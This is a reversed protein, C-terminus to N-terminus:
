KKQIKLKIPLYVTLFNLRKAIIFVMSINWFAISTLSAIAAGNIGHPKILVLNLIINIITSIFVILQVINHNDTMNLINTVPGSIANIFQGCTLIVLAVAGEKFQEGFIGLVFSPFFSFTLLFPSSTWFIMKTVQQALNGLGEIDGRGYFEAFKPVAISNIAFLTISTLMAVKVSVAYVGVESETRLMGLMITDTWQMILGLSSSLLMPIAVNLIAFYNNPLTLLTSPPPPSANTSQVSHISRLWLLISLAFMLFISIVYIILPTYIEKTTFLAATLLISSFLFTGTHQLFSYEKIKKLGRISEMNISLLALPPVGAAAIKFSDTLYEKHFIYKTIYPSTMYISLFVLFSFPLVIKLARQHVKRASDWQGQSSYEAVFRLLATDMGLRGIISSIQLVTFALAFIGMSEAGYCRTIILTFIYGFGLGLIRFAFAVSSCKILEDFNLHTIFKERINDIIM